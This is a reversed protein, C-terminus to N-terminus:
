NGVGQREVAYQLQILIRNIHVFIGLGSHFIIGHSTSDSNDGINLAKVTYDQM